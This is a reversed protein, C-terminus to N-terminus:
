ALGIGCQRPIQTQRPGSLFPGNGAHEARPIGYRPPQSLVSSSEKSSGLYGPLRGRNGLDKSQKPVNPILETGSSPIGAKVLSKYTCWTVGQRIM